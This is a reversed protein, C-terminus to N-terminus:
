LLSAEPDLEPDPEDERESQAPLDKRLRDPLRTGRVAWVNRALHEFLCNYQLENRIVDNGLGRKMCEAFLAVRDLVGDPSSRLVDVMTRETFRLHTRYDLPQVLIVRGDEDLNFDPHIELLARLVKLPPLNRESAGPRMVFRDRKIGKWMREVTLMPTVSLMDRCLSVIHNRRPAADTVWYWGECLVRFRRSSALLQLVKGASCPEGTKTRVDAAVDEAHGLAASGGMARASRLIQAAAGAERVVMRIPGSESIMLAPELHLDTAAIMVAEPAFPMRSIGREKLLEAAQDAEIPASETLVEVARMLTPVYMPTTPLTARAREELQRMRERTVSCLRGSEALSLPRSTWGIRRLLAKLRSGEFGTYLAFVEEVAEEIPTSRLRSVQAEISRLWGSLSVPGELVGGAGDSVVARGGAKFSSVLEGAIQALSDGTAPIIPTFRLDAASILEAWDAEAVASLAALTEPDVPEPTGVVTEGWPSRVQAARLGLELISEVGMGPIAFLAAFTLEATRQPDELLKSKLLVNYKGRPWVSKLLTAGPRAYAPFVRVHDARPGYDEMFRRVYFRLAVKAAGDKPTVPHALAGVTANPGLNCGLAVRLPLPEDRWYLALAAPLVQEAAFTPPSNLIRNM